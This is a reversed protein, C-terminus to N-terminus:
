RERIGRGGRLKEEGTDCFKNESNGTGPVEVVFIIQKRKKESELQIKGEGRRVQRKLNSSVTQSKQSAWAACCFFSM